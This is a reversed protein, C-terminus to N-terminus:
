GVQYSGHIDQGFLTRRGAIDMYLAISGMTHGPIHLVRLKHRGFRLEDEERHLKADVPCPQFDVGYFEAGVQEGSEIAKADLAHSIVKVGYIQKFQSLAGIHDIHCHPSM